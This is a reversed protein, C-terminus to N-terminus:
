SSSVHRCFLGVLWITGAVVFPALPITPQAISATYVSNIVAFLIVLGALMLSARYIIEGWSLVMYSTSPGRRRRWM